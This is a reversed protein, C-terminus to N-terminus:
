TNLNDLGIIVNHECSQKLSISTLKSPGCSSRCGSKWALWPTALPSVLKPFAKTLLLCDIRAANTRVPQRDPSIWEGKLWPAEYGKEELVQGFYDRFARAGEKFQGHLVQM